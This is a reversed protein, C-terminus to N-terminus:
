GQRKAQRARPEAASGAGTSATKYFAIINSIHRHMADAARASDRAKLAALIERAERLSEQNREPWQSTRRRVWLAKDILDLLTQRVLSNGAAEYIALHLRHDLAVYADINDRTTEDGFAEFAATLRALEGHSIRQAAVGAVHTELLLRFELVELVDESTLDRVYTGSQPSVTLWGEAQLRALATRLPSRNVHLAAALRAESLKEGPQFELALIRRKIEEYVAAASSFSTLTDM